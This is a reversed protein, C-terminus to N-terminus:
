VDSEGGSQEDPDILDAAIFLGRAEGGSWTHAEHRIKRALRRATETQIEVMAASLAAQGEDPTKAVLRAWESM